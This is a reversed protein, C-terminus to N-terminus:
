GVYETDYLTGVPAADHDHHVHIVTRSIIDSVVGVTWEDIDVTSTATAHLLLDGIAVFVSCCGYTMTGDNSRLFGNIWYVWDGPLDADRMVWASNDISKQAFVHATDLILRRLHQDNTKYVNLGVHLSVTHEGMDAGTFTKDLLLTDPYGTNYYTAPTVVWGADFECSLCSTHIVGTVADSATHKGAHKHVLLPHQETDLYPGVDVGRVLKKM